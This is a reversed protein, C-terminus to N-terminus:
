FLLRLRGCCGEVIAPDESAPAGGSDMNEKRFNLVRRQDYGIQKEEKKRSLDM